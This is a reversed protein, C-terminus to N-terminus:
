GIEPASEMDPVYPGTVGRAVMATQARILKEEFPVDSIAIPFCM